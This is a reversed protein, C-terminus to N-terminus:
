LIGLIHDAPGKGTRVHVYFSLPGSSKPCIVDESARLLGEGVALRLLITTRQNPSLTMTPTKLLPLLCLPKEYTTVNEAFPLRITSSLSILIHKNYQFFQLFIYILLLTLPSTLIGWLLIVFVHQSVNTVQKHFKHSLDCFAMRVM